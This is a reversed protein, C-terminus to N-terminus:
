STKTPKLANRERKGGQQSLHSLEASLSDPRHRLESSVLLTVKLLDSGERHRLKKMHLILIIM